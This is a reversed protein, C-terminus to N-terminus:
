WKALLKLEENVPQTNWSTGLGFIQQNGALFIRFRIPFDHTYWQGPLNYSAVLHPGGTILHNIFGNVITIPVM